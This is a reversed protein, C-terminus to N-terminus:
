MGKPMMDYEDQLADRGAIWSVISVFAGITGSMIACLLVVWWEDGAFVIFVLTSACLLVASVAAFPWFKKSM